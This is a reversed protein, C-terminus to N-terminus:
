RGKRRPQPRTPIEKLLGGVGMGMIDQATVPVGCILRELVWDVGNLAPSRACGPLGIVPRDRHTGIFLLNGPDVPMGYHLVEGGAARLAAPAVDNIDSTASGTLILIIDAAKQATIAASLADTDHAVVAKAPMEVGMAALRAETAEHGRAGDDGAVVTQLFAPQCREPTRFSLAGRAHSEAEALAAEPVAYSIIKITAVMGRADMRQWQPVTAITIMPHVANVANIADVDLQVIGPRDAL